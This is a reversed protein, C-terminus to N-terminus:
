FKGRKRLSPDSAAQWQTPETRASDKNRRYALPKLQALDDMNPQRQQSMNNDTQM